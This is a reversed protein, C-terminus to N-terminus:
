SQNAVRFVFGRLPAVCHTREHSGAISQRAPDAAGQLDGGMRAALDTVSKTARDFEAGRIKDFTLLMAEAGKVAEDSYTTTRQLAMSLDDLQQVSRGAVGGTSAVAAELQAMANQAEITNAQDARPCVFAAALAAGAAVWAKTLTAARSEAKGMSADMNRAEIELLGMRRTLRQTAAEAKTGAVTLSDLSTTAKPVDSNEVKIALTAIDAM